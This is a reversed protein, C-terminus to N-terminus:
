WLVRLSCASAYGRLVRAILDPRTRLKYNYWDHWDDPNMRMHPALADRLVYFAQLHQAYYNREHQGARRLEHLQM